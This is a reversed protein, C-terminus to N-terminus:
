FYEKVFANNCNKGRKPMVEFATREATQGHLITELVMSRDLGLEVGEGQGAVTHGLHGPSVSGRRVGTCSGGM